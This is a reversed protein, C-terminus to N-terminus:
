YISLLQKMFMKVSRTLVFGSKFVIVFMNVSRTM